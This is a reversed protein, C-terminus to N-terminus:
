GLRKLYMENIWTLENEEFEVKYLVYDNLEKLPFHVKKINRIWGIRTINSERDVYSVKDDIKFM